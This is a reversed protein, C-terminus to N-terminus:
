RYENKNILNTTGLYPMCVRLIDSAISKNEALTWNYKDGDKELFYWQNKDYKFQFTYAKKHKNEADTYQWVICNFRHYPDKKDPYFFSDTDVVYKNYEEFATIYEAHTTSAFPVSIAVATALAAFTKKLNLGFM